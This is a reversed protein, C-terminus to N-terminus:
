EHWLCITKNRPVFLKMVPLAFVSAIVDVCVARFAVEPNERAAEDARVLVHGFLMQLTVQVFEIKTHGVANSQSNIVHAAGVADQFARFAFPERIAVHVSM